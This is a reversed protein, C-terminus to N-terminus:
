DEAEVFASNQLMDSINIIPAENFIVDLVLKSSKTRLKLLRM